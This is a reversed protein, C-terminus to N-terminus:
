IRTSSVPVASNHLIPLVDDCQFSPHGSRRISCAVPTRLPPLAKCDGPDRLQHPAPINRVKFCCDPSFLDAQKTKINKSEYVSGIIDGAIAGMM